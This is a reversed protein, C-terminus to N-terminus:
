RPDIRSGADIAAPQADAPMASPDPRPQESPDREVQAHDSAPAAGGGRVGPMRGDDFVPGARPSPRAAEIAADSRPAAGTSGPVGATAPEARPAYPVPARTQETNAGAAAPGSTLLAVS